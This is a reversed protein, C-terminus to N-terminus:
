RSMFTQDYWEEGKIPVLLMRSPVGAACPIGLYIVVSWFIDSM